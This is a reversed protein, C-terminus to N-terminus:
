KVKWNMYTCRHRTNAKNNMFYICYGCHLHLSNIYTCHMNDCQPEYKLYDKLDDLIDSEKIQPM